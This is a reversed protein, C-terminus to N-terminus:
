RFTTSVEAKLKYITYDGITKELSFKERLSYGNTKGELTNQLYSSNKARRTILATRDPLLTKELDKDIIPLLKMFNSKGINVYYAIDYKKLANAFGDKAIERNLKKLDNSYSVRPTKIGGYLTLFKIDSHTRLVKGKKDMRPELYSIVEETGELEKNMNGIPGSFTYPPYSTIQYGSYLGFGVSVTILIIVLGKIVNHTTLQSLFYFVGSLLFLGVLLFLHKYYTHFYLSKSAAVMYIASSFLLSLLIKRKKGSFLLAAVIGLPFTYYILPPTLARIQEFLTAYMGSDLLTERGTLFSPAYSFIKDWISALTIAPFGVFVLLARLAPNIKFLIESFYPSFRSLIFYTVILAFGALYITTVAAFFSRAPLPSIIARQLFIILASYIGLKILDLTKEPSFFNTDFLKNSEGGKRFFITLALTPLSILLFSYKAVCSLGIFIFSLDKEGSLYLNLGSFMFILAPLDTVTLYTVYHFLFSFALIATGALAIWDGFLNKQFQYILLLLLAGAGTLLSRVLLELSILQTLSMFPLIGWQLAPFTGFNGINPAEEMNTISIYAGNQNLFPNGKEYMNIVNPLYSGYKDSNALGGFPKDLYPVRVLVFAAIILALVLVNLWTDRRLLSVIRGLTNKKNPDKINQHTTKVNNTENDISALVLNRNFYFLISGLGTILVFIQTSVPLFLSQFETLLQINPYLSASFVLLFLFLYNIASHLRTREKELKFYIILSLIDYTAIFYFLLNLHLLTPKFKPIVLSLILLSSFTATLYTSSIYFFNKIQRITNWFGQVIKM